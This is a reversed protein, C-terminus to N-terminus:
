AREEHPNGTILVMVAKVLEAVAQLSLVLFGVVWVTRFPWVVPNWSSVGTLEGRRYSHLAYEFLEYSLWWVAPLFLSYGAIDALAKGRPPLAAHFIDVNVHKGAKLTYGMGLLFIAGMLMYSVESAWFTPANFIYRAIVEYFLAGVLPFILLAGVAGAIDSIREIIRIFGM